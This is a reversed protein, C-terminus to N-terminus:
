WVDFYGGLQRAC